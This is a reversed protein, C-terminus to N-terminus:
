LHIESKIRIREKQCVPAKHGLTKEKPSSVAKKRKWFSLFAYVCPTPNSGVGGQPSRSELGARQVVESGRCDKKGFSLNAECLFPVVCPPVTSRVNFCSDFCIVLWFVGMCFFVPYFKVGILSKM